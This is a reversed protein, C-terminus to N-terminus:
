LHDKRSIFKKKVKRTKKLKKISIKNNTSKHFDKTQKKQLNLYNQLIPTKLKPSFKPFNLGDKVTIFPLKHMKKPQIIPKYKLIKILYFKWKLTLKLTDWNKQGIM